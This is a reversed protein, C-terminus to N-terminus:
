VHLESLFYIEVQLLLIRVKTKQTDAGEERIESPPRSEPQSETTKAVEASLSMHEGDDALPVEQAKETRAVHLDEATVDRNLYGKYIVRCNKDSLRTGHMRNDNPSQFPVDKPLWVLKYHPVAWLYRKM